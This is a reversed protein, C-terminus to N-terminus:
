EGPNWSAAGSPLRALTELPETAASDDVFAGVRPSFPEFNTRHLPLEDVFDALPRFLAHWGAKNGIEWYWYLGGGASGGMLSAWLVNHVSITEPEYIGSDGG